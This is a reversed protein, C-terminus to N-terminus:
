VLSLQEASRDTERDRMVKEIQGMVGAATLIVRGRNLMERRCEAVEDATKAIRYGATGSSSLIPTHALRLNEISQRVARDSMQCETALAKRTWTRIPILELVRLVVRDNGTLGGFSRRRAAGISM